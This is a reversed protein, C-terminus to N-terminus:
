FKDIDNGFITWGERKERSFYEIKSAWSFNKDITDFFVDPKRSHERRKESFIDRWDTIDWIPRGKVALLCFECQMRLWFGMGIKEKNWVMTAKYSFGWEKLIDFADPLFQHTTWLFMISNEKCPIEIKKIENISMEPYPNAVRSTEPDFKRGYPWPPDFALVDFKQNIEPLNEAEIDAKQKEIDQERKEQKIEKYVQNISVENRRLKEKTKENAKNKVVAAMAVKGTSWGLDAAVEKQTNHPTTDKSKKDIISLLNAENDNILDTRKGQTKKGKERLIEAKVESLEFKVFDTLNRRGAQNDIMWLKVDNLSDFLLVEYDFPLSHEQAIKYRNHGDALWYFLEGSEKDPYGAIKLKDQIGYEICNLELQAFEEDM